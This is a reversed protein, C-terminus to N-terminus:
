GKAMAEILVYGSPLPTTTTTSLDAQQLLSEYESASREKGGLLLFMHLDIIAGQNDAVDSIEEGLRGLFSEVLVLRGEPRMARRCNKLIRLIFRLLYLDGEPISEFFDRRL